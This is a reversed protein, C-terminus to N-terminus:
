RMTETILLDEKIFEPDAPNTESTQTTQMEMEHQEDNAVSNAGIQEKPVQETLSKMADQWRSVGETKLEGVSTLLVETPPKSYTSKPSSSDNRVNWSGAWMSFVIFSFASSIILALQKRTHPPKNRLNDLLEFM